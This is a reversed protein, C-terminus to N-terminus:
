KVPSAMYTFAVVGAVLLVIVIVILAIIKNNM